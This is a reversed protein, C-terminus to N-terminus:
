GRIGPFRWTEYAPYADRIDQDMYTQKLQAYSSQRLLKWTQPKNGTELGYGLELGCISGILYREHLRRTDDEVAIFSFQGKFRIERLLADLRRCERDWHRFDSRLSRIVRFNVGGQEAWTKLMARFLRETAPKQFFWQYANVLVLRKNVRLFGGLAPVIAEPQQNALEYHGVRDESADLYDDVQEPSYWGPEAVPERVIIGDFAHRQHLDAVAERWLTQQPCASHPAILPLRSGIDKIRSKTLGDPLTNAIQRVRQKWDTPVACVVRGQSWGFRHRLAELVAADCVCEPQIAVEDFLM